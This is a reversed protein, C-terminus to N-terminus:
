LEKIDLIIRHLFEMPAENVERSWGLLLTGVEMLTHDSLTELIEDQLGEDEPWVKMQGAVEYYCIFDCFAEICLDLLSGKESFYSRYRDQHDGRLPRYYFTMEPATEPTFPVLTNRTWLAM